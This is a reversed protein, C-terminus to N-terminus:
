ILYEELKKLAKNIIQLDIKEERLIKEIKRTRVLEDYAAAFLKRLFPMPEHLRSVTQAEPEIVIFKYETDEDSSATTSYIDIRFRDNPNFVLPDYDVIMPVRDGSAALIDLNWSRLIEGTSPNVIRVCTIVKTSKWLAGIPIFTKNDPVTYNPGPSVKGVNWGSNVDLRWMPVALGFDKDPMEFRIVMEKGPHKQIMKCYAVIVKKLVNVAWNKLDFWPYWVPVSSM